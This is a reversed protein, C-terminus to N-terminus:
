SEEEEKNIKVSGIIGGIFTAVIGLYLIFDGRYIINVVFSTISIICTITALVISVTKQAKPATKAGAYVFVGGVFLDRTISLVIDTISYVNVEGYRNEMQGIWLTCLIYILLSSIIAVFPIAIWRLTNKM